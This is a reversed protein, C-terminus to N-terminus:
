ATGYSVREAAGSASPSLTALIKEGAVVADDYRKLAFVVGRGSWAVRHCGTSPSGPLTVAGVLALDLRGSRLQAVAIDLANLGSMSESSCTTSAGRLGAVRNIRQSIINPLSGLVRQASLKYEPESKQRYWMGYRAADPHTEMGAFVGTRLGPVAELGALLRNYLELMLTQQPLADKLDNPPSGLGNLPLRIHKIEAAKEPLGSSLLAEAYERFNEIEGTKLELGVM